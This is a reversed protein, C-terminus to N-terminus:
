WNTVFNKPPRIIRKKQAVQVQQQKKEEPPTDAEAKRQSLQEQMKEDLANLDPNLLTIAAFNLVYCDLVENRRNEKLIWKWHSFGQRNLAIVRKESTLQLFFEQGCRENFHMYGPPYKGEVLDQMTLRDYIRAKISDVGLIALRARVKNRYHLDIIFPKKFGEDGKTAFFRRTQRRKVYRYVNEASFGSDICVCNLGHTTWPLLEMGSRNKWPKLLYDDLERWTAEREPSGHIVNRDIFWSQNEKGWGLVICELRDEQIDVGATLVLVGSPVDEYKEVRKLLEDDNIELSKDEVFTEGLTQNIFVRLSERSKKAELFEKVINQWTSFPSILESIHFGAHGVIEPRQKRWQGSRIMTNKQRDEIPTHCNECPYHVNEGTASDFKLWSSTLHAFQSEKSFVFVQFHGCAPCPSFYHRQDSKLFELEIPSLGRTTPNSLKVLKRHHFLYTLTRKRALSIPNGEGGASFPYADIDDLFARQITKQRFGAASNAGVIYLLGGAFHKHLIENTRDKVRDTSVKQHLCPTDRVMPDFHDKSWDKGEKLGPQVVMMPGPDQDIYYGIANDVAAQTGGCRASKMVTVEDILPDVITDMIERQYEAKSTEWQGSEASVEKSLVRFRDAWESVTLKPPPKLLAFAKPLKLTVLNQWAESTTQYPQSNM